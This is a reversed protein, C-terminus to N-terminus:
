ASHKEWPKRRRSNNSGRRCMRCERRYKGNARIYTNEKTYPHGYPCHTILTHRLGRRCNVSGTVPELHFPNVCSRNCCLHDLELGAAVDGIYFEYAFRHAVQKRTGTWFQGYGNWSLAGQWIACDGYWLVKGWFREEPPQPHGPM